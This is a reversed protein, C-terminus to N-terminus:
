KPMKQSLTTLGEWITKLSPYVAPLLLIFIVFWVLNKRVFKLLSFFVIVVIVIAIPYRWAVPIKDILATYYDFIQNM